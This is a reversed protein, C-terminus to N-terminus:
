TINNNLNRDGPVNRLTSQYHTVSIEPSGVQGMKM